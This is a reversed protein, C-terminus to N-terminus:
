RICLKIFIINEKSDDKDNNEKPKKNEIIFNIKDNINTIYQKLLEDRFVEEENKKLISIDQKKKSVLKKLENIKTYIKIFTIRTKPIGDYEAEDVISKFLDDYNLNGSDREQNIYNLGEVTNVVQGNYIVVVM